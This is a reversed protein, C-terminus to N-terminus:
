HIGKYVQRGCPTALDGKVQAGATQSSLNIIATAWQSHHNNTGAYQGHGHKSSAAYGGSRNLWEPAQCV